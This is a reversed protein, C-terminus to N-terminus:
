SLKDNKSPLVTYEDERLDIVNEMQDYFSKESHEDQHQQTEYTNHGSCCGMGDKRYFILYVFLAIFILPILYQMNEDEKKARCPFIENMEM